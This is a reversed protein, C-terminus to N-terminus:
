STPTTESTSAVFAIVFGSLVFLEADNWYDGFIVLRVVPSHAKTAPM